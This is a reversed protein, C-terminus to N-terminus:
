MHTTSQRSVDITCRIGTSIVMLAFAEQVVVVMMVWPFTTGGVSVHRNGTMAM